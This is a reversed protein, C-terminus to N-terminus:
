TYSTTVNKLAADEAQMSEKLSAPQNGLWCGPTKLWHLEKPSQSNELGPHNGMCPVEARPDRKSLCQNLEWRPRPHNYSLGLIM